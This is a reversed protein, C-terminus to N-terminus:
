EMTSVHYWLRWAGGIYVDEPTAWVSRDTVKEGGVRAIVATDFHEDIGSRLEKGFPRCSAALDRCWFLLRLRRSTM